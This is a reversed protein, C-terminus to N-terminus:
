SSEIAIAQQEIVGVNSASRSQRELEARFLRIFTASLLRQESLKDCFELVSKNSVPINVKIQKNAKQAMTVNVKNKGASAIDGGCM